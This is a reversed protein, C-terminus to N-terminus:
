GGGFATKALLNSLRSLAKSRWRWRSGFNPNALVGYNTNFTSL